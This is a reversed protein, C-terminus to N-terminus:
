GPRSPGVSRRTDQSPTETAPSASACPTFAFRSRLQGLPAPDNKTAGVANGALGDCSHASKPGRASPLLGAIGEREFADEAQYCTPRSVGFLAAAHATNVGNRFPGSM